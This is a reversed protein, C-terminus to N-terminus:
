DPFYERVTNELIKQLQSDINYRKANIEISKRINGNKNRATAAKWDSLMEVLDPLTMDNIGSPWNEPHHRNNAYHHDIAPQVQKLLEKYEDSGYETQGLKQTNAAFISLEPEEFKSADHKLSRDIFDKTFISLYGQVAQVHKHTEVRCHLIEKTEM